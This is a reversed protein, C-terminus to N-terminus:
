QGRHIHCASIQAAYQCRARSTEHGNQGDHRWWISANEANSAMPAPFEGTGPANGACLGTVRLKSIKKSRCGFLRSLLCHLTQPNSVGDLGNQRWQLSCSVIVNWSSFMTMQGWFVVHLITSIETFTHKRSVLTKRMIKVRQYMITHSSQNPNFNPIM